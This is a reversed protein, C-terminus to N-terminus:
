ASEVWSAQAKAYLEGTSTDADALLQTLFLLSSVITFRVELLRLYEYIEVVYEAVQVPDGIDEEDLDDWKVEEVIITAAAKSEGEDEDVVEIQIDVEALSNFSFDQNQSKREVRNKSQSAPAVTTSTQHVVIKKPTHTTNLPKDTHVPIRRPRSHDGFLARTKTPIALTPVKSTSPRARTPINSPRLYNVSSIKQGEDVDEAKHSVLRRKSSREYPRTLGNIKTGKEIKSIEKVAKEVNKGNEDRSDNDAKAKGKGNKNIPVEDLAARKRKLPNDPLPIVVEVRDVPIPIKALKLSADRTIVSPARLRSAQKLEASRRSSRTVPKLKLCAVINSLLAIILQVYPRVPINSM